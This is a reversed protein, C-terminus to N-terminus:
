PLRAIQSARELLSKLLVPPQTGSRIMELVGQIARPKSFERHDKIGKIVAPWYDPSTAPVNIQRRARETLFAEYVPGFGCACLHLEMNAEPMSVTVEDEVRTGLNRRIAALDNAGQQDNDRLVIWHIGLGNAVKLCPELSIGTQYTVCRVGLAEFDHGLIRALEPLLTAETEGEGLIWCRAFLLEGRAQRIHFNFKRQEDPDLGADALRSSAIDGDKRYLRVVSDSPAESLLDGSHSSIIKQGPLAALLKWLARIASPHLHAEPEELAIFPAGSPWTSLFAHFLMLVSLSQTGEGHRGLPVKAGTGAALNVQAKSLMDFLRGPVAEISVTNERGGVPVIKAIDDLRGSVNAFTEHSDVILRNVERLKAEIEAQSDPTLQSDKLFPRWFPGRPDFHKGADRLAALYYYSVASQLTSVSSEPLGTLAQGASNLFQWSQSFDKAVPDFYATVEFIVMGRGADDAQLLRARQLTGLLTAGWEGAQDEHFTVRIRIPPAAVPESEATALHFDYTDFACGKRSRIDKLAFRLADLIATKGTNNEGILVTIDGLKLDLSKIGRFNEIQLRRVKM